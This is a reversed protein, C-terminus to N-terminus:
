TCSLFAKYQRLPYYNINGLVNECVHVNCYIM